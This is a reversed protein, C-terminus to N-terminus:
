WIQPLGDAATSEMSSALSRAVNGGDARAADLAWEVRNIVETVVDVPDYSPQMVAEAIGATISPQTEKGPTRVAELAKRLKDVVFFANEDNTDALIVAVRTLDYRVAVDNQRIHSSIVLGIQQMMAEVAAEGFERVMASAKGFELLILTTASAQQMGRQVESLLVDLYSSRKLLGSKEDTVALTKVLSRLRSNNVALVMQDAITRLVMIDTERWDRQGGCQELILVGQHEDADVLPVALLSDIGLATVVARISALEPAHAANMIMAAGHPVCLKQVTTILKVIGRVDSQKIGPACYEMAASPPKGPTCLGAVCRSASWHRGVDNVAAFLVGKVNAQRYINRTIDTVRSINEVANEDAAAQPSAVPQHAIAPVGSSVAASGDTYRPVFGANLYLQRLKDSKEEERPFLSFIREIREMAKSRMSYQLFLEAQLILDELVTSESEQVPQSNDAEAETKLVSAFRSALANFRNREIKGRLMELRRQHGTEYPDVEGARDLCDSAKLFNGAAYHLEFLQLLAACYDHERNSSNYLEVLYEVFQTNKGHREGVEKMQNVFERRMGARRQHEELKRAAALAREARDEDVLAGILRCIHPLFKADREFMEWLFPEADSIRNIAVLALAYAERAEAPASPYNALPELLRVAVEARGDKVLCLAHGLSAGPNEPDLKHAREYADAPNNDAKELAVGLQVYTSAALKAEGLQAAMEAKARLHELSADLAVLRNLAAFSDQKRGADAFGKVAHAFAEIADRVSSKEILQAYHFTQDTTPAALRALKKYTIGAKGLDNSAVQRDFLESLLGAADSTRGVSLCLDAASQRVADNHPDEQLAELYEELALDLKGKQLYKDAKDLRKSIDTM